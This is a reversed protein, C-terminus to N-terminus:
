MSGLDGRGKGAFAPLIGRFKAVTDRLLRNDHRYM